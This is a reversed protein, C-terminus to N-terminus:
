LYANLVQKTTPDVRQTLMDALGEMVFEGDHAQLLFVDSPCVGTRLIVGNADYVIFATM